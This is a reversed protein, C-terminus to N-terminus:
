AKAGAAKRVRPKRPKPGGEVIPKAEAGPRAEAKAAPPKKARPKKAPKAPEDSVQVSPPPEDTAGYQYSMPPHLQVGVDQLSQEIEGVTSRMAEDHSSLDAFQGRRMAEVEKRLDDLESQRAMEDFSSRFEAAMNRLKAVFQGLRRLMVPLDKPGVVVLAVVAIVLWELGGVDPLM